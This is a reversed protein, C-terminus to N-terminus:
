SKAALKIAASEDIAQPARDRNVRSEQRLSNLFFSVGLVLPKATRTELVNHNQLRYLNVQQIMAKLKGRHSWSNLIKEELGSDEPLFDDKLKHRKLQEDNLTGSRTFNSGKATDPKTKTM